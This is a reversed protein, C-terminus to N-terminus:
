QGDQKPEADAQKRLRAFYFGDAGETQPLWQEGYPGPLGHTPPLDAMPLPEICADSNRSLFREIQGSNEAPLVSCTAYLLVGGPKLTQWVARLIDAQLGILTDIDAPRRLLKIDPHRRIVGTGSCPVDLLIRDFPRGDWWADTQEAPACRLTAQQGLRQLNEEVRTLRRASADLALLEGQGAMLALLHGTKGGPAACADLVRDGPQPDLWYAAMQAAEDQVSVAGAEFGPLRHVACATDLTVGRPSVATPRGSLGADELQQLWGDRGGAWADVRITMPGPHQNAELISQWHDPWARRLRDILWPPHNWVVTEDDPVTLEHRMAKRLVANVLGRAWPKKLLRTAEVTANVAAHDPTALYRQQCLGVMILCHVDLDKKKLPKKLAQRTLADLEQFHRVTQYVLAQVFSRDRENVRDLAVPLSDALSQGQQWVQLVCQAAALRSHPM